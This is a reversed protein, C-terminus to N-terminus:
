EEPDEGTNAFHAANRLAEDIENMGGPFYSLIDDFHFGDVSIVTDEEATLLVENNTVVNFMLDPNESAVPVVKSIIAGVVNPPTSEPVDVTVGKQFEIFSGVVVNAPQSSSGGKSKKGGGVLALVAVIAIPLALSM